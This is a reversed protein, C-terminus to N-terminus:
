KKRGYGCKHIETLETVNHEKLASSKFEQTNNNTFCSTEKKDMALLTSEKDLQCTFDACSKFITLDGETYCQGFMYVGPGNEVKCDKVTATENKVVVTGGVPNTSNTLALVKLSLLVLLLLTIRNM